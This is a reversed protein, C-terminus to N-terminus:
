AAKDQTGCLPCGGVVKDRGERLSQQFEIWRRGYNANLPEQPGSQKEAEPAHDLVYVGPEQLVPQEPHPVIAPTKTSSPQQQLRVDERGAVSPKQPRLTVDDGSSAVGLLDDEKGMRAPTFDHMLSRKEGESLPKTRGGAVQDTPPTVIRGTEKNYMVAGENWREHYRKEYDAWTDQSTLMEQKFEPLMQIREQDLEAYFKNEHTGYPQIRNLPVLFKKSALWGGTDVVVYRIEGNAHDFIVDAVAGLKENNVGYVESGRVDQIDEFRYNDLLGYHPM